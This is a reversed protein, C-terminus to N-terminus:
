GARTNNDLYMLDSRHVECSQVLAKHGGAILPKALGFQHLFEVEEDGRKTAQAIEERIYTTAM